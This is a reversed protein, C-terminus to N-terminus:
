LNWVCGQYVLNAGRAMPDGLLAAMVDHLDDLMGLFRGGFIRPVLIRGWLRRKRCGSIGVLMQLAAASSM